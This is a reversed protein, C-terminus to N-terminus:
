GKKNLYNQFQDIQEDVLIENGNTLTLLVFSCNELKVGDDDISLTIDAATNIAGMNVSMKKFGEADFNKNIGNPLFPQGYLRIFNNRM